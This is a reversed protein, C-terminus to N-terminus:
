PSTREDDGTRQDDGTDVRSALTGGALQTVLTDGAAVDEPRRVVTGDITRTISWGRALVNVPDLARVRAEIGDVHRRESVLVQPLRAALRRKMGTVAREAHVVPRDTATRLREVRVALREDAREIAAHTR